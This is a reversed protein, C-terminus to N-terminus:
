IRLRLQLALDWKRQWSEMQGGPLSSTEANKTLTAIKWSVTFRRGGKLTFVAAIKEGNGYCVPFQFQYLLGPEHLYIRNEWDAIRFHVMQLTVKLFHLPSWILQQAAAYGPDGEPSESYWSIILRSKWQFQVKTTHRYQLDLRTVESWELPAAGPGESQVSHQWGRKWARVRWSHSLSGSNHLDCSYKYSLSPLSALHGPAPFRFLEISCDALLVHDTELHLSWAVGQDNQVKSGAGYSSPFM